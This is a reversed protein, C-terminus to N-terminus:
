VETQYWLMIDSFIGGGKRVEIRLTNGSTQLIGADIVSQLVCHTGVPWPGDLRTGIEHIGKSNAILMRVEASKGISISAFMFSVLSRIDPRIGPTELPFDHAEGADLLVQGDSVVDYKAVTSM